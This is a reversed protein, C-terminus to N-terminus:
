FLSLQPPGARDRLTSLDVLETPETPSAVDLLGRFGKTRLASGVVSRALHPTNSEASLHALVVASLQPCMLDSVFSAAAQNSLHGHSSSIRAKVSQPYEGSWLMVEDYNSEVILGDCGRLAHRVQATPRGLDTAIGLRLGTSQDCVAVAVPDVADHVTIFPEIRLDGVHFPYGPRYLEVRESGNLLKQCAERTRRTMVLTTGHRRAFIGAGQTHDGHEHTVVISSVDNPDVGVSGLRKALERGSFGADVLIHTSGGSILTANGTSGSGLVAFRM